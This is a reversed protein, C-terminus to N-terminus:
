KGKLINTIRDHVAQTEGKNPYYYYLYEGSIEDNNWKFAGDISYSDMNSIAEQMSLLLQLAEMLDNRELNTTFNSEVVGMLSNLYDMSPNELFKNIVGRIVEMQHIGRAVDGKALVHRIRSFMLAKEGDVENQGEVFCVGSECYSADSYVSIGGMADVLNRVGDFNIKAFYDIKVDFYNQIALISCNVGGTAGAYTLKTHRNGNCPIESWLDRPISQMMVKKTRPNVSMLINVDSSGTSTIDGSTLDVGSVFMVFPDKTLDKNGSAVSELNRQKEFLVKTTKQYELSKEKLRSQGYSSIPMMDVKKDLLAQYLDEYTKYDAKKVNAKDEDVMVEKAFKTGYTDSTVYGIKLKSFDDEKTINSKKLVVIQMLESERNNLIHDSFSAIRGAGISIVSFLIAVVINYILAVKGGKLTLLFALSILLISIVGVIITYRFPFYSQFQMINYIGTIVILCAIIAAAMLSKSTKLYKIYQSFHKKLDNM